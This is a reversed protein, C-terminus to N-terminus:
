NVETVERREWKGKNEKSLGRALINNRYEIRVNMLKIGWGLFVWFYGELICNM